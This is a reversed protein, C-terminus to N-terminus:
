NKPEIRVYMENDAWLVLEDGANFSLDPSHSAWTGKEEPYISGESSGEWGLTGSNKTRWAWLTVSMASKFKLTLKNEEGGTCIAYDDGATWGDEPNATVEVDTNGLGLAVKLRDEVVPVPSWVAYVDNSAGPKLYDDPIAAGDAFAVEGVAAEAWGAFTYDARVFDNSMFTADEGPPYSMAKAAGQGGNPWYVVVADSERILDFQAVYTADGSVSVTRTASTEGDQWQVFVSGDESIAQLEVSAGDYYQGGGSVRGRGEGTTGVTITSKSREKWQAYLTVTAAVNTLNMVDEGQKVVRGAGDPSLCWNLFDFGEREVSVVPLRLLEDYRVSIPVPDARFTGGNADFKVSYTIPDWQATLVLVEGEKVWATGGDEYSASEADVWCAFVYGTRTFANASLTVAGSYNTFVQPVMEGSGGEGPKFVIKSYGEYVATIQADRTAVAGEEVTQGNMDWRTFKHDPWRDVLNNVFSFPIKEGHLVTEKHQVEEGKENCYCFIIDYENTKYLAEIVVDKAITKYDPQWGQFSMGEWNDYVTSSPPTASGGSVVHQPMTTVCNGDRDRYAFCVSYTEADYIAEVSLNRTVRKYEETSWCKFKHEAWQDVDELAPVDADAVSEGYRVVFPGKVVDGDDGTKYSFTVTFTRIGFEAVYTANSVVLIRRPNRTEGDTWRIFGSGEYPDATLTPESGYAYLGAGTVRGNGEGAVAWKVEFQAAEWQAFLSHDGVAGVTTNANVQRGREKADAWGLFANGTRTPTPLWGYTADCTVAKSAPFVEGGNPDFTVTWSNPVFEARFTDNSDVVASRQYDTSGDEWRRFKSHDFGTKEDSAPIAALKFIDGKMSAHQGLNTGVTGEGFPSKAITVTRRDDVAIVPALYMYTGGPEYRVTLEVQGDSGAVKTGKTRTFPDDIAKVWHLLKYGFPVTVTFVAENSAEYVSNSHVESEIPNVSLGPLESFKKIGNEKESDLMFGPVSIRLVDMGFASAPLVARVATLLLCLSLIHKRM